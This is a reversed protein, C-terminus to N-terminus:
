LAVLMIIIIIIIIIIGFVDMNPVVCTFRVYQRLLVFRKDYSVANSTGFLTVM